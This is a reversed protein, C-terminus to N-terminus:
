LRSGAHSSVPRDASLWSHRQSCSPKLDVVEEQDDPHHQVLFEENHFGLAKPKGTRSKEMIDAFCSEESKAM